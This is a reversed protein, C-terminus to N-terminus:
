FGGWWASTPPIFVWQIQKVNCQEEIDAWNLQGFLNAAGVFNTGNESYLTNHRGHLSVFQELSGLFAETSLSTVLDLEVCRYVACTYM